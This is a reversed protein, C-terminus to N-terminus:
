AGGTAAQREAAEEAAISKWRRINRQSAELEREDQALKEKLPGDFYKLSTPRPAGREQERALVKRIVPLIDQELTAGLDYWGQLIRRDPPSVLGAEDM